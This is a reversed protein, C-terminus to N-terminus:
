CESNRHIFEDYINEYQKAVKILNFKELVRHRAQQGLQRKKDINLSIMNDFAAALEKPKRTETIIGTEGVVYRSDGVNTAVCPVCCSMAEGLVNPFGEGWASSLCFIDLSAYFIAMNRFEGMLFVKGDLGKKKILSVLYKNDADIDRGVLIYYVNKKNTLMSAACLFSLHDKMPHYRAAHGILIDTSNIGLSDRFKKRASENPKFKECDFGNGIFKSHSTNYGIKAHQKSSEHSNYLISSVKGSLKACFYIVFLTLRKERGGAHLSHRINWIVRHNYKYFLSAIYATINGHYMWGQIIDPKEKYLIYILKWLAKTSSLLGQIHLSYVIIGKNKIIEGILGKERLSVVCSHYRTKDMAGILKLLMMEAGGTDLGSIIHL